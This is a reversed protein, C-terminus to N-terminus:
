QSRTRVLVATRVCLSSCNYGITINDAGAGGTLTLLDTQVTASLDGTMASANVSGHTNADADLTADGAGSLNYTINAPEAATGDGNM